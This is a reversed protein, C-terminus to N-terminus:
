EIITNKVAFMEDMQQKVSTLGPLIVDDWLGQDREVQIINVHKETGDNYCEVLHAKEQDLLQMYTQIQIGEYERVESFLRRTRNKIEIVTGDELQGDIKGGVNFGGDGVEKNLMTEKTLITDGTMEKYIAHVTDEKRTGYNTYLKSQAYNNLALKEDPKLEMQNIKTTLIAAKSFAEKSTQTSGATDKIQDMLDGVVEKNANVVKYADMIFVPAKPADIGRKRAHRNWCDQIAETASKYPNRGVLAAIESANFRIATTM